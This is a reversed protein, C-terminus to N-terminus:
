ELLNAPFIASPSNLAGAAVESISEGASKGHYLAVCIEEIIKFCGLVLAFAASKFLTVYILPKGKFKNAFHLEQAFLMIKGLALANILAEGWARRLFYTGRVGLVSKYIVFLSFVL